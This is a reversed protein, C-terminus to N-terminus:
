VGKQYEDELIVISIMDGKVCPKPLQSVPISCDNNVAEVFSKQQKLVNKEVGSSDFKKTTSSTNIDLFFWPVIPIGM